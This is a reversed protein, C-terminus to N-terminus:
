FYELITEAFTLQINSPSSSGSAGFLETIVIFYKAPDLSKGTGILFDYGHHTSGFATQLLIINSSDSNLQGHTVYLVFANPLTVGNELKYDGLEYFQHEPQHNSREQAFATNFVLLCLISWVLRTNRKVM